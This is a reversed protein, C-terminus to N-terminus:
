SLRVQPAPEKEIQPHREAIDKILKTALELNTGYAVRTRVAFEIINNSENSWNVVADSM